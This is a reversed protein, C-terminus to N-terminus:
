PHQDEYPAGAVPALLPHTTAWHKRCIYPPQEAKTTQNSRLTNRTDSHLVVTYLCWTHRFTHMHICERVHPTSKMNQRQYSPDRCVSSWSFIASRLLYTVSASIRSRRSEKKSSKGPLELRRPVAASFVARMCACTCAHLQLEHIQLAGSNPPSDHSESQTIVMSLHCPSPTRALWLMHLTYTHSHPQM